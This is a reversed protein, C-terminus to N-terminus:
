SARVGVGLWSLFEAMTERLAQSQNPPIDSFPRGRSIAATEWGLQAAHREYAGHFFDCSREILEQQTQEAVGQDSAGAQSGQGQEQLDQGEVGVQLRGESESGANQGGKASM